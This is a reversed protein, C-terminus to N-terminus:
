KIIIVEYIKIKPLTFSITGNKIEVNTPNEGTISKLEGKVDQLHLTVRTDYLDIIRTIPHTMEGTFNILHLAYGEECKRLVVEVSGPANTEVIPRSLKNVTNVFLTYLDPNSSTFYAQGLDGTFYISKGKGYNNEIAGAYWKSPFASYRSPIIESTEVFMKSDNSPTVNMAYNCSPFGFESVNITYDNQATIRQYGTGPVAYHIASNVDKIGQIDKLLPTQLLTGDDSYFGTDYFSIVNGGNETFKKVEKAVDEKLCAVTPMILLDYNKLEGLLISVDDIINFQVHSRELM